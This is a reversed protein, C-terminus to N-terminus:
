FGALGCLFACAGLLLISVSQVSFASTLIGAEQSDCDESHGSNPHKKLPCVTVWSLGAQNIALTM